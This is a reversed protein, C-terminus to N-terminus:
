GPRPLLNAQRRRGPVFIKWGRRRSQRIGSGKGEAMGANRRVERDVSLFSVVAASGAGTAGKKWGTKHAAGAADIQRSLDDIRAQVTQYQVTNQPLLQAARRWFDRAGTLDGAQAATQAQQASQELEASHRLWGCRPCSLTASSDLAGNCEPCAAATQSFAASM